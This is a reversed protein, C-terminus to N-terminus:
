CLIILNHWQEQPKQLIPRLCARVEIDAVVCHLEQSGKCSTTWVSELSHAAHRKGSSHFLPSEQLCADPECKQM